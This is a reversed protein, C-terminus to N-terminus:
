SLDVDPVLRYEIGLAIADDTTQPRCTVDSPNIVRSGDIHSESPCPYHQFAAISLSRMRMCTGTTTELKLTLMGELGILLNNDKSKADSKKDETRILPNRTLIISRM